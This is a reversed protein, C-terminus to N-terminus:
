PGGWLTEQPAMKQLSRGGMPPLVQDVPSEVTYATIRLAYGRRCASHSATSTNSMGM